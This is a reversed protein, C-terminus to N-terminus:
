SIAAEHEQMMEERSLGVALHANSNTPAHSQVSCQRSPPLPLHWKWRALEGPNYVRAKLFLLIMEVSLPARGKIIKKLSGFESVHPKAVKEGTVEVM